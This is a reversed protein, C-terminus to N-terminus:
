PRECAPTSCVGRVAGRFGDRIEYITGDAAFVTAATTGAPRQCAPPTCGASVTGGAAAPQPAALIAVLLALPAARRALRGLRGGVSSRPLQQM